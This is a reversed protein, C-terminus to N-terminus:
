IDAYRGIRRLGYPRVSPGAVPATTGSLSANGFNWDQGTAPLAGSRARNEEVILRKPCSPCRAPEKHRRQQGCWGLFSCLSWSPVRESPLTWQLLWEVKLAQCTSGTYPWRWRCALIWFLLDGCTSQSSRAERIELRVGPTWHSAFHPMIERGVLLGARHEVMAIWAAM